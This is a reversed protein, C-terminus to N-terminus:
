VQILVTPPPSPGKEVVLECELEAVLKSAVTSVDYRTGKMRAVIKGSYFAGPRGFYRLAAAIDQKQKHSASGTMGAAIAALAEDENVSQQPM